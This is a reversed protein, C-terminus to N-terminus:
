TAIVGEDANGSGSKGKRFAGTIMGFTKTMFGVRNTKLHCIDQAHFPGTM